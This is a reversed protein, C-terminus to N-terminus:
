LPHDPHPHPMPWLVGPNEFVQGFFHLIGGWRDDFVAWNKDLVRRGLTEQYSWIGGRHPVQVFPTLIRFMEMRDIEGPPTNEFAQAVVDHQERYALAIGAQQVWRAKVAPDSELRAAEYAAFGAALLNKRDFRSSPFPGSFDTPLDGGGLVAQEMFAYMRGAQQSEEAFEALVEVPTPPQERGGRWQLFDQGAVGIESVIALNGAELMNLASRAVQLFREKPTGSLGAILRTMRAGAVVEVVGQPQNRSHPFLASLLETPSNPGENQELLKIVAEARRMGSGAERSAFPAFAYWSPMGQRPLDYIDQFLGAMKVYATNIGLNLESHRLGQALMARIDPVEPSRRPRLLLPAAPSPCFM